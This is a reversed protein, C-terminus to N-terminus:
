FLSIKWYKPNDRWDLVKKQIEEITLTRKQSYHTENWKQHCEDSCFPTELDEKGCTYCNM